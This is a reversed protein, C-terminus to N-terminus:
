VGIFIIQPFVQTTIGKKGTPTKPIGLKKLGDSSPPRHRNRRKQDLQPQLYNSQTLFEANQIQLDTFEIWLRAILRSLEEILSHCGEITEPREMMQKSTPTYESYQLKRFEIFYIDANVPLAFSPNECEGKIQTYVQQLKSLWWEDM